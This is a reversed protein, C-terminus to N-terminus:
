RSCACDGAPRVVRTAGWRGGVRVEAWGCMIGAVLWEAGARSARKWASQRRSCDFNACAFARGLGPRQGARVRGSVAGRMAWPLEASARVHPTVRAARGVALTASVRCNTPLAHLCKEDAFAGTGFPPPLNSKINLHLQKFANVGLGSRVGTGRLLLASQSLISAFGLRHEGGKAHGPAPLLLALDLHPPPQSPAVAWSIVRRLWSYAATGPSSLLDHQLSPALTAATGGHASSITTKLALQLKKEGSGAGRVCQM